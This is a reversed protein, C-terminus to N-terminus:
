PLNIYITTESVQADEVPELTTNLISQVLDTIEQVVEDPAQNFKIVAKNTPNGAVYSDPNGYGMKRLSDLFEGAQADDDSFVVIKYWSRDIEETSDRALTDPRAFTDPKTALTTDAPRPKATDPASPPPEPARPNLPEPAPGTEFDAAYLNQGNNDQRVFVITRGDPAFCGFRATASDENTLRTEVGTRRDVVYLNCNRDLTRDYLLLEGDSSWSPHSFSGQHATIQKRRTGDAQMLYLKAIGNDDDSVLAIERGNPNPAPQCDAPKRTLSASLDSGRIRSMLGYPSRYVIRRSDRSYAPTAGWKLADGIIRETRGTNVNYEYVSNGANFCIYGGDPSWAPYSIPSDGYYAQELGTGDPRALYLADHKDISCRANFAVKAGNPAFCPVVFRESNLGSVLRRVNVLRPFQAPAPMAQAM